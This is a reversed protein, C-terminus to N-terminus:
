LTIEKILQLVELAQKGEERELAKLQELRETYKKLDTYVKVNVGSINAKKMYDQLHAELGATDLTKEAYLVLCKSKYAAHAVVYTAKETTFVLDYLCEMGESPLSVTNKVDVSCSHYRFFMITSVLSKSAPLCGLVAVVTLLNMKSKTAMYGAIFLSISVGFYVITRILEYKKQSNIYGYTNKVQSTTFFRKLDM